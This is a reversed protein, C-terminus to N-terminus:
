TSFRINRDTFGANQDQRSTQCGASRCSLIRRPPVDHIRDTLYEIRLRIEFLPEIDYEFTSTGRLVQDHTQRPASRRRTNAGQLGLEAGEKRGGSLQLTSRCASVREGEPLPGCEQCKMIHLENIRAAPWQGLITGYM